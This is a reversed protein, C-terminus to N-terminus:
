ADPAGTQQKLECGAHVRHLGMSRTFDTTLLKSREVRLMSSAKASLNRENAPANGDQV